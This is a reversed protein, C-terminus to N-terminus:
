PQKTTHRPATLIGVLKGIQTQKTTPMHGRALKDMQLVKEDHHQVGWAPDYEFDNTEGKNGHM